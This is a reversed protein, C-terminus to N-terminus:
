KVGFYFVIWNFNFFDYKHCNPTKEAARSGLDAWFKMKTKYIRKDLCRQYSRQAIAFSHSEFKARFNDTM